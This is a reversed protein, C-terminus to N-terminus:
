LWSMSWAYRGAVRHFSMAAILEVVVHVADFVERVTSHDGGIGGVEAEIPFVGTM